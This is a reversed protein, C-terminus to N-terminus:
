GAIAPALALGYKEALAPLTGDAVLELTAANVMDVIDSGQRFAIGYEETALEVNPIMMLDAYDTGEGVMTSALTWDLVAADATGAKVESLCDTQKTVPVYDCQALDANPESDASGIIQMEGASSVEAVLCKGILDATSAYGSDAKVVIVQANKVYPATIGMAAEREPTITLGNWICDITKGELELEKTDWNIEVFEAEVGLKECIALAYETDFGTFEGNDDFYNMPAYDTYGIVMKGNGSVYAWDSDADAPPAAPTDAAPPAANGSDAPPTTTDAAPPTAPAGCAAFIGVCLVLM